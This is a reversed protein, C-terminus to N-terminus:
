LTLRASTHPIQQIASATHGYLAQNRLAAHDLAGDRRIGEHGLIACAPEHRQRYVVALGCRSCKQTRLEKRAQELKVALSRGGILVDFAEPYSQYLSVEEEANLGSALRRALARVDGGDAPM